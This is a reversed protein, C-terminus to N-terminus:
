LLHIIEPTSTDTPLWSWNHAPDLRWLPDSDSIKVSKIGSFAGSALAYLGSNGLNVNKLRVTGIKAASFSTNEVFRPVPSGTPVALGTIKISAISSLMSPAFDASSSPHPDSFTADFGALFNSDKAAGLTLSTMSGTTSIRLGDAQGRINIVRTNGIIDWVGSAGGSIEASGLALTGATGNIDLGAEFNGMITLKDLRPTTLMDNAANADGDLWQSARLLKVALGHANILVDSITGLTISIASTSPVTLTSDTHIDITRGGTVNGLDLTTLMGEVTMNGALNTTKATFSGASGHILIGDATTVKRSPTTISVKTTAGAPFVEISQIHGSNNGSTTIKVSGGGTIRVTVPTGNEDLFTAKADVWTPTTLTAVDFMITGLGRVPVAVLSSSLSPKFGGSTEGSALTDNTFTYNIHMHLPDGVDLLTLNTGDHPVVVAKDGSVDVQWVNGPVEISSLYKPAAPSSLDYVSMRSDQTQSGLWETLFLRNGEIDLGAPLYTGIAGAFTMNAPNSINVVVLGNYRNNLANTLMTSLYAYQGKVAVNYAELIRLGRPLTTFANNYKKLNTPDSIDYSTLGINLEAVFAKNGSLSLSYPIDATQVSGIPLPQNPNSVDVSTLRGLTELDTDLVYLTTGSLKIDLVNNFPQSLESGDWQSDALSGLSVANQPDSIDYIKIGGTSLGTYLLHGDQLSCLTNATTDPLLSQFQPDGPDQSVVITRSVEKSGDSLILAFAGKYGEPSKVTVQWNTPDLSYTAQDYTSSLVPDTVGSLDMYFSKEVEPTVTVTPSKNPVIVDIAQSAQNDSPDTVTVTLQAKGTFSGDSQILITGYRGQIDADTLIAVSELLPPSLPLSNEGGLNPNPGTPTNIITDYTSQGTAPDVGPSVMQGFIFYKGNLESTAAATIFFQCDNTDSGSNAFALVGPGDFTLIPDFADPFDGLPSGGTGNGNLKDGTQIVFDPIVRHVVVDSYFPTASPDINGESDFGSESLTIFRDTATPSLDEFLQVVITGIDTGDNSTFHLAAFRDTKPILTATVGPTQSTVSYTLTDGPDADSAELGIALSKDALFYYSNFPTVFAPASGELLLRAELNEFCPHM